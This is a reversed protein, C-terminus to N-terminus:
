KIIIRQGNYYYTGKATPKANLARGNMDFWRNSKVVTPVVTIQKVVMPEEEGDEIEVSINGPMEPIIAFSKMGTVAPRAQMNPKEYVLYARMPQITAGAAVKKFEGIKTEGINEAAFGYARGLESDDAGFTKYEYVGKMTWVIGNETKAETKYPGEMSNLTLNEGSKAFEIQTISSNAVMIYPTNAVLTETVKSVKVVYRRGKDNEAIRKFKYFTVGSESPVPVSFPVMFTELAGAVMNRKYVVKGVEVDTPIVLTEDSNGNLTAVLKGSVNELKVGSIPYLKNEGIAAVQEASLIGEYIEGDAYFQKGGKVVVIDGESFGEDKLTTSDTATSWDLVVINASTANIDITPYKDGPAQVWVYGGEASHLAVFVDGNAFDDASKNTGYDGVQESALYYSN